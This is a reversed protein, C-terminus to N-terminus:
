NNSEGHLRGASEKSIVDENMQIGNEPSRM